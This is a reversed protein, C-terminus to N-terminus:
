AAPRDTNARPPPRGAAPNLGRAGGVARDHAGGRAAAPAAPGGGSGGACSPSPRSTRGGLRRGPNRGIGIGILGPGSTQQFWTLFRTTPSRRTSGLLVAGPRPAGIIRAASPPCLGGGGGALLWTRCAGRTLQFTAPQRGLQLLHRVPAAPWARRDRGLVHVRQLKTLTLSMGLMAPRTLATGALAVLRRGFSRRQVAIHRDPGVISFLSRWRLDPFGADQAFRPIGLFHFPNRCMFASLVSLSPVQGTTGNASCSRSISSCSSPWPPRVGHDGARPLHGQCGPHGARGHDHRDARRVRQRSSCAASSTATSAVVEVMPSVRRLASWPSRRGLSIQNAWATLPVLSLM